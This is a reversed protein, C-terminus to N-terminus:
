EPRPREEELKKCLLEVIYEIQQDENKARDFNFGGVRSTEDFIGPPADSFWIPIVRKEGFRHKFQDSEFKTWIRKPYEPGLFVIVFSAESRYIPGLYEEINSALIRHEENKDYFVSIEREELKKFVKEALGREPAAFSLAFDYKSRFEMALFGVDKAFKGWSLNRLFYVFKPDEASIILTSADFHLVESFRVNGDMFSRLYGKDLIVGVSGRQEPHQTIAQGLNIAWDDSDSLWHLIHLYPARGERRLRPGTAFERAVEFFVRYLEELVKERVIEFSIKLESNKEQRETIKAYLCANFSLLQAIHFSGYSNKIIEEGIDMKVNLAESGKEFLEAVKEDANREFKITDIRNNLDAALKVLSDGVKNIGVIVLKSSPNEEDALTKLYDAIIQKTSDDLRHFDDIIVIGLNNMDPLAKIIDRHENKRATLILVKGSLGLEELVKVVGTTKGVGSPGEVVLGKGPTRLAVMLRTYEDPKVFTYSPIGSVKFVEELRPAGM